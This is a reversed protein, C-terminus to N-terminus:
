LSLHWLFSISSPFPSLCVYYSLFPPPTFLSFHLPYLFFCLAIQCVPLAVSLRVYLVVTISLSMSLCISLYIFLCVSPYISSYVFLHISLHISMCISLYIYLCVSPCISLYVFLYISLYISLCISPYLSKSTYNRNKENSFATSTVEEFFVTPQM